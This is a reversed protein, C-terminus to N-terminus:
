RNQREVARAIRAAETQADTPYYYHQDGIVQIGGGAGAGAAASGLHEKAGGFFQASFDRASQRAVLDASPDDFLGGLLGGVLGGIPGFFGGIVSGIASGGIQGGGMLGGAIEQLGARVLMNGMQEFFTGFDMTGETIARAMEDLFQDAMNTTLQDWDVELDQFFSNWADSEVASPSLMSMGRMEAMGESYARIRALEADGSSMINSGPTTTRPAGVMPPFSSPQAHAPSLFQWDGGTLQNGREVEAITAHASTTWKDLAQTFYALVDAATAGSAAMEEMWRAANLFEESGMFELASPGLDEALTTFWQGPYRQELSVMDRIIQGLEKFVPQGEARLYDTFVFLERRLGRLSEETKQIAESGLKYLPDDHARGGQRAQQAQLTEVGAGYRPLLTNLLTGMAQRSRDHPSAGFDISGAHMNHPQAQAVSGSGQSKLLNGLTRQVSGLMDGASRISPAADRVLEGQRKVNALSSALRNMAAAGVDAGKAAKIVDGIDLIATTMDLDSVEEGKAAMEELGAAAEMLRDAMAQDPIEEALVRFRKATNELLLSAEGRLRTDMTDALAEIAAMTKLAESTIYGLGIGVTGAAGLVGLATMAIGLTQLNVILLTVSSAAQLMAGAGFVLLMAEGFQVVAGPNERMWAGLNELAPQLEQLLAEAAPLVATGIDIMMVKMTQQLKAMQQAVTDNMKEFAEQAAGSSDAIQGQAAVFDEFGAGTLALIVRLSQSSGALETLATIDGGTAEKMERMVGILGKAELAEANLEIGLEKAKTAAQSSPKIIGLIAQNLSRAAINTPISQKTMAVMASMLQDFGLNAAAGTSLIFKMSGGLENMTTRGLKVTNFLQDSVREAESTELGYANIVGSLLGVTTAVDSVGGVAARSAVGLFEISEGADIGSSIADYLGKTLDDLAMGTNIALDKVGTALGEMDVEATNVLTSVEAVGKGFKAAEHAAAAMGALAAGSAMMMGRGWQGATRSSEMLTSNVGGLDGRLARLSSRAKTSDGDITIRAKKNVAM